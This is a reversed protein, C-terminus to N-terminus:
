KADTPKYEVPKHSWENTPQALCDDCPSDDEHCDRYKCTGCYQDFYVEKEKNPQM